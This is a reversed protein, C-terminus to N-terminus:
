KWFRLDSKFFVRELYPQESATKKLLPSILM